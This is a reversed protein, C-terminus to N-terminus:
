IRKGQQSVPDDVVRGSITSTAQEQTDSESCAGLLLGLLTISVIKVAWSYRNRNISEPM